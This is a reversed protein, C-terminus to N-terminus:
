GPLKKLQLKGRESDYALGTVAGAAARQFKV